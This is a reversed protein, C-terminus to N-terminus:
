VAARIQMASRAANTGDSANHREGGADDRRTDETRRAQKRHSRRPRASTWASRACRRARSTRDEVPEYRIGDADADEDEDGAVHQQSKRDDPAGSGACVWPRAHSSIAHVIPRGDDEQDHATGVRWTVNRVLAQGLRGVRELDDHASDTTTPTAYGASSTTLGVLQVHRGSPSDHEREFAGVSGCSRPASTRRCAHRRARRAVRQPQNGIRGPLEPALAGLEAAGRVRVHAQPHADVRRLVEVAPDLCLRPAPRPAWLSAAVAPLASNAPARADAAMGHAAHRGALEGRSVCDARASARPRSQRCCATFIAAHTRSAGCILGPV